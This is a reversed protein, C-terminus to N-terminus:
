VSPLSARMSRAMSSIGMISANRHWSTCSGLLRCADTFAIRSRSAEEGFLVVSVSDAHFGGQFQGDLVILAQTVFGCGGHCVCLLFQRRQAIRQGCQFAIAARQLVTAALRVALTMGGRRQLQVRVQSTADVTGDLLLFAEDLLGYPTGFQLANCKQIALLAQLGHFGDQLLTGLM